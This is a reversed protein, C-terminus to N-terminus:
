LGIDKIWYVIKGLILMIIVNEGRVEGFCLFINGVVILFGSYCLNM